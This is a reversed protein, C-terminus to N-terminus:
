DNSLSRLGRNILTWTAIMIVFLVVAVTCAYGMELRTYGYDSMHLVVTHTSYDTSPNGTLVSNQYGVAFSTSITLVAGILLQPVMQPLTIYWLEQWRNHLGDMAAAEYLSTNLQKFGAVFSLFGAGMSMWLIVTIVVISNYQPDNQWQIAEAIFGFRMLLSNLIGYADGSFIYQWAMFVNGALAPAYFILTLAARMNRGTENILWAVIFSLLYGAPGTLLAYFLTNGLAKIFIDDDLLLRIYNDVGVPKLANVMDFDTFSLLVSAVIPIVTFFLFLVLWFSLLFYSAGYKKFFRKLGTM